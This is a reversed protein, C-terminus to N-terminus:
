DASGFGRDDFEDLVSMVRISRKCPNSNLGTNTRIGTQDNHFIVTM